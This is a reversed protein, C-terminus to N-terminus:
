VEETPGGDANGPIQNVTQVFQLIGPRMDRLAKNPILRMGAADLQAGSIPDTGHVDIWREINVREYSLGTGCLIVPDEMLVRSIPCLFPVLLANIQQPIFNAM